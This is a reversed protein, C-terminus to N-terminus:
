GLDASKIRLDAVASKRHNSVRASFFRASRVM